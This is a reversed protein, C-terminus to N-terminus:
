PNRGLKINLTWTQRVKKKLGSNPNPARFFMQRATETFHMTPYKICLPPPNYHFSYSYCLTFVSWSPLIPSLCFPKIPDLSNRASATEFPSAAVHRVASGTNTPSWPWATLAKFTVAVGETGMVRKPDFLKLEWIAYSRVEHPGM